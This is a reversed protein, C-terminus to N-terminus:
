KGGKLKKLFREREERAAATNSAFAPAVYGRLAAATEGQYLSIANLYANTSTLTTLSAIGVASGVQAASSYMLLANGRAFWTDGTSESYLLAWLFGADATSSSAISIIDTNILSSILASSLGLLTDMDTHFLNWVMGTYASDYRGTLLFASSGDKSFTLARFDFNDIATTSSSAGAVLLTTVALNSLAIKQVCSSPNWSGAQQLGGIAVLVLYDGYGQISFGNKGVTTDYGTESGYPGVHAQHVLSMNLEVITSPNYNGSTYLDYGSNFLAYVKSNFVAVDVGFAQATTSPVTPVAFTFGADFTLTMVSGSVSITARFVTRADYDIGILYNDSIVIKYLNAITVTGSGVVATWTSPGYVLTWNSSGTNAAAGSTDQYIMYKCVSTKTTSDWATAAVLVYHIGGYSFAFVKTDGPLKDTSGPYNQEMGATPAISSGDFYATGVDGDGSSQESNVYNYVSYVTKSSM